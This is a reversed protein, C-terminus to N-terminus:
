DKHLILVAFGTGDKMPSKALHWATGDIVCLDRKSLDAVDSERCTFNPLEAEREYEGLAFTQTPDDFIGTIERSVGEQPTVTAKVAFDDLKLFADPDDWVPSPM